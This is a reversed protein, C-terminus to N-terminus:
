ILFGFYTEISPLSNKDSKNTLLAQFRQNIAPRSFHPRYHISNVLLLLFLFCCGCLFLLLSYIIIVEEYNCQYKSQIVITLKM